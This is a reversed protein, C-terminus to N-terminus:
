QIFTRNLTKRSRANPQKSWDFVSPVATPKLVKRVPTWNYDEKLFHDSCVCTSDTVQLSFPVAKKFVANLGWARHPKNITDCDSKHASGSAQSFNLVSQRCIEKKKVCNSCM